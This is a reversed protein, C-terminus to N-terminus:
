VSEPTGEGEAPTEGGEAPADTGAEDTAPTDTSEEVPPTDIEEFHM